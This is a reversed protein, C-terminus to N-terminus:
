VLASFQLAAFWARAHFHNTPQPLPGSALRPAVASSSHEIASTAFSFTKGFRRPTSVMVESFCRQWSNHEMIAPRQAAWEGKYVVRAVCREFASHFQMQHASRRGKMVFLLATFSHLTSPLLAPSVFPMLVYREWGRDDVLKLLTRLTRLNVDGDYVDSPQRKGLTDMVNVVERDDKDVAVNRLVMAEKRARSALRLADAHKEFQDLVCQPLVSQECEECEEVGEM